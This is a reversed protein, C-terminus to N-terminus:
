YKINREEKYCYYSVVSGILIGLLIGALIDSPFHVFLYLRSLAMFVALVIGVIGLWRIKSWWLVTAAIVSSLTHGSPFSYDEPVPILMSVSSDLWCPRPRAVIPKLFANGVVWGLALGCLMAVGVHRYRKNFLCVVAMAIWIVGGNGLSSYVPVIADLWAARVYEQIWLLISWDGPITFAM